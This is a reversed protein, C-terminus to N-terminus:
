GLEEVEEGRAPRRARLSLVVPTGTFQFEERLNNQLYRM